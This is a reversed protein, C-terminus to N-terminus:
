SAAKKASVALATRRRYSETNLELVTAHHVLRDIAAVTMAPDPFIQNWESFPQNCTAILSKREYREAILEFLVATEAQDKRVYGLDDLIMCDYRDLKALTAPLTLDRRAAQLRQVLDTTRTFLVRQGNDILAAGIAAALHTKGTGSPGFLLINAGQELWADGEALAKRLTPVAAFDFTAFTKGQPLGAEMLHRAIRRTARETLEHECLAALLRAAGWGERDATAGLEQWLRGITPLRLTNLMVPLKAADVTTM